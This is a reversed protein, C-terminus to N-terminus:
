HAAVSIDFCSVEDEVRNRRQLDECYWKTNSYNAGQVRASEMAKLEESMETAAYWCAM